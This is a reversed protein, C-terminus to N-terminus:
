KKWASALMGYVVHDVYHDYLWEAQRV